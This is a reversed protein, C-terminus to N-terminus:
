MFTIYTCYSRHDLVKSGGAIAGITPVPCLDYPTSDDLISTIRLSVPCTAGEVEM